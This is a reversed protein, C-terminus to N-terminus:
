EVLCGGPIDNTRHQQHNGGQQSGRMQQITAQAPAGRDFMSPMRSGPRRDQHRFLMMETSHEKAVGDGQVEVRIQSGGAEIFHSYV